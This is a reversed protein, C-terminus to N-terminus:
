FIACQEGNKLGLINLFQVYTYELAVKITKKRTTQGKIIEVAAKPCSLSDAIFEILEKNAKGKEPPNKLYCKLQGNKDLMWKIKGSSPIVKVEFILPM